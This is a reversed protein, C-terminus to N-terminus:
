PTGVVVPDIAPAHDPRRGRGIVLWMAHALVPIPDDWALSMKADCGIAWRLWSRLPVGWERAAYIDNVECWEVGARAPKVPPRELGALDAWVMAPLNVGAVAGPFHWLNFRPNVEFVWLRGDPGRKFDIKAVGRLQLGRMLRRGEAAVEADHTITLATTYGFERPRTRIKRGTFEGAITGDDAVYAHYSVLRDEPGDIIEQAVVREGFRLLRPWVARLQAADDVRLAKADPKVEIWRANARTSPKLLLPFALDTPPQPSADVVTTRPISAGIRGALEYFSVKDVIAKLQDAPALTFRMVSALRQRHRSIFLAHEDLQYFLVPPVPQAAAWDVLRDCLETADDWGGTWTFVRDVFRSYRVTARPGAVVACRVGAMGLPRVLNMDGIVCAM